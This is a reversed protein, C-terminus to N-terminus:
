GSRKEGILTWHRDSTQTVNAQLDSIQELMSEVESITLAAHLSQRLLQQQFDTDHAAHFQVLNEVESVSDPRLLDRVFMQGGSRLLRTAEVFFKQPEPIHHVISNSMLVDYSVPLFCTATADAAQFQIRDELGYKLVHGRATEIMQESLDVGLITGEACQRVFELPILGTGTGLDLIRSDAQIEIAALLDEIFKQNVQSHDMTDYAQVEEATSMVEPELTRPLM